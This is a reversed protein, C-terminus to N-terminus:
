NKDVTWLVLEGIHRMPEITDHINTAFKISTQAYFCSGFFFCIKTDSTYFVNDTNRPRFTRGSSTGDQWSYFECPLLSAVKPIFQYQSGFVWMMLWGCCVQYVGRVRHLSHRSGSPLLASRSLLRVSKIEGRNWGTEKEAQRNTADFEKIPVFMLQIIVGFMNPPQSSSTETMQQQPNESIPTNTLLM